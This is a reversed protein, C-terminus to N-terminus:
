AASANRGAFHVVVSPDGSTTVAERTFMQELGRMAQRHAALFPAPQFRPAHADCLAVRDAVRAHGHCALQGDDQVSHPEIAGLEPPSLLFHRGGRSSRDFWGVLSICGFPQRPTRCSSSHHPRVERLRCPGCPDIVADILYGRWKKVFMMMLRAVSTSSFCSRRIVEVSFPNQDESRGDKQEAALM